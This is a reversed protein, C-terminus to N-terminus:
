VSYKVCCIVCGNCVRQKSKCLIMPAIWQPRKCVCYPAADVIGDEEDEGDFSDLEDAVRFLIVLLCACMLASVAYECCYRVHRLVTCYRRTPGGDAAAQARRKSQRTVPTDANKGAVGDDDSNSDYYELESGDGLEDSTSADFARDPSGDAAHKRQLRAGRGTRKRCVCCLVVCCLVVCCLM